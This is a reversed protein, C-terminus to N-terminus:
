LPNAVCYGSKGLKFDRNVPKFRGCPWDDRLRSDREGVGSSSPVVMNSICRGHEGGKGAACSMGKLFLIPFPDDNSPLYTTTNHM